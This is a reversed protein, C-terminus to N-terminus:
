LPIVEQDTGWIRYEEVWITQPLMCIHVVAEAVDKPGLFYPTEPEPLGASASFKTDGAGPILATVRVNYPRLEVYCGKSLTVVGAKAAAYVNFNPWAETACASSINIITGDKQMKMMEGFTRCGYAVSNLNLRLIYDIDEISQETIEKVSVGGGANNVLIDIRKYTSEVRDRLKEWEEPKTADAKITTVDGIQQKTKELREENTGTIIVHSGLAHFREAMGKGYGSSGGTIVVVKDKLDQM